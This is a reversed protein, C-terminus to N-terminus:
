FGMKRQIILLNLSTKLRQKIVIKRKMSLLGHNKGRLVQLLEGMCYGLGFDRIFGEQLIGQRICNRLLGPIELMKKM